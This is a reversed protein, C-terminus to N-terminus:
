EPREEYGMRQEVAPAAAAEVLAVVASLNRVLEESLGHRAALSAPTNYSIRVHGDDDEWALAKLPLDLASRPAAVILPTGARPNGFLLMQAPRMALGARAADGSFDIRAFITLGRARALSELRDITAAVSHSSPVDAIGTTM